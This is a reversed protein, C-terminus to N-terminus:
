NEKKIKMGTKNLAIGGIFIVAGCVAIKAWDILNLPVSHFFINLPSYIIILQLLFATAVAIQLWKNSFINLKYQTRITYAMLLEYLVVATFAVTQAKQTSESLYSNFLLLVSSAILINMAAIIFIINKSMIGERPNRPKKHMIGREAPDFSLALAPLGDSVINIWLLQTALLPLPKFLLVAILIILVEAINGSLLYAISKVINDYIGRGEEVASVISAFNDDALIIESSEKAVDTGTIGMAIGIDAKKLAPADNVGDGTMAVVHGKDKLAGIIRMKHEPNVRAFVTTEAIIEKLKEEDMEDLEKGTVAIGELGLQKAIAQATLLHDGTIMIVKIGAKKCLQISKFAEPRPTDIMGQLGLFIFGEEIGEKESSMEKFAFGLVRLANSAMEEEAKIIERKDGYTILRTSENLYIKSCKELVRETAGKIFAYKRGEFQNVTVMFKKESSFPVENLRKWEARLKKDKIEAKLAVSLLATETPDGLLTGEEMSANNCLVATRFLLEFEEPSVERGKEKFGKETVGFFKSNYYINTVNMENKTLTGTKDSCIVTISGLTEVAPLRRILANRKIMRRISLALSITVVAPLGEPIAAVALSISELLSDTIRQILSTSEVKLFFFQMFFIFACILLVFVAIKKALENLKLQLPTPEEKITEILGAIKGIETDMGTRAIIGKGEGTVVITGSFLMNSQDAIITKGKIAEVKKKVPTSEGTLSAEQTKLEFAELLRIDAPIKSGEEILVIDGPVLLESEIHKRKGERIVTAKLSMLKKLEQISKDAKNEQYFGIFANLLIIATIAIADITENLLLAIVTAAILVIILINNFQSLFILLKSKPKEEKLKNPGYEQLRAAAERESLGETENSNLESVAKEAPVEYFEPM